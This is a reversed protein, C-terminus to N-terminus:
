LKSWNFNGDIDPLAESISTIPKHCGPCFLHSFTPIGDKGNIVSFDKIVHGCECVPYCKLEVGYSNM